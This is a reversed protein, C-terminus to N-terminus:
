EKKKKNNNRTACVAEQVSDMIDGIEDADQQNNKLAQGGARM